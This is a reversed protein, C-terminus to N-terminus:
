EINFTLKIPANIKRLQTVIPLSSLINATGTLLDVIVFLNDKFFQLQDEGKRAVVYDEDALTQYYGVMEAKINQANTMDRNKILDGDTLRSQAFRTELSTAIFERGTSATDVYNLFKYTSDANGASDTKYTTYVQGMIIGNRAKNNGIVSIGADGLDEIESKLFGRSVSVVPLLPLPTNAYPKSSLAPGGIADLAGNRSIVFQAINAGTQRRLARIAGIQSAVVWPFEFIASENGTAFEDGIIVVSQSNHLNGLTVLNAFTNNAPIIAVGDLVEGDANFRTDLFDKVTDVDSVYPWVITQYRQDGIADLVSTLTPDLTGTFNSIFGDLTVTVGATNSAASISAFNGLDGVTFSLVTVVGAINSASHGVSLDENIALVIANAIITPTDGIDIAIKFSHDKKSGVVFEFTGAATATGAVTITATAAAGAGDTAIIADFQCIPNLKRASNIMQALYSNEGFLGNVVSTSNSINQVYGTATGLVTKQGVFLVKQESNEIAATSGTLTVNTSPFNINSSM